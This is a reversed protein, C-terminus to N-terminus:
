SLLDFGMADDIERKALINLVRGKVKEHLIHLDDIELVRVDNWTLQSLQRVTM